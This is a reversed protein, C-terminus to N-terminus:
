TEGRGAYSDSIGLQQFDTKRLAVVEVAEIDGDRQAKFESHVRSYTGLCTTTSSECLCRRTATSLRLPRVRSGQRGSATYFLSLDHPFCVQGRQAKTKGSPFLEIGSHWFATLHPRCEQRSSVRWSPICSALHCYVEAKEALSTTPLRSSSATFSSTM